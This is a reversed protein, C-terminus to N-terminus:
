IFAPHLYLFANADTLLPPQKKSGPNTKADPVLRALDRRPEKLARRLLARLSTEPIRTAQTHAAAVAVATTAAARLPLSVRTGRHGLTLLKM